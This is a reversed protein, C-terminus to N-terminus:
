VSKSSSHTIAISQRFSRSRLSQASREYNASEPAFTPMAVEYITAPGAAQAPAWM